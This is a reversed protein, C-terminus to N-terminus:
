SAARPKRGASPSRSAQRTARPAATSASSPERPSPRIPDPMPSRPPTAGPNVTVSVTSPASTGNADTVVLSFTLTAAPQNFAVAPATFTPNAQTANSLTVQPGATQSWQFSVAIGTADASASGDLIVQASSAVTQSPGANAVPPAPPPPPPPPPPPQAAGEIEIEAALISGDAQLTGEIEIMQGAALDAFSAKRDRIEFTTSSATHVTKGAVTLDLGAIRDIAGRFEIETKDKGKGGGHIKTARISGDDQQLGQVDIVQGVLDSLAPAKGDVDFQTSKDVHVTSTAIRLDNGKASAVTGRIEAEPQGKLNGKGDRSLSISVGVVLAEDLGPLRISADVGPGSLHLTSPGQAAASLSFRGAGDTQGSLNTGAIDAKLAQAATGDAAAIQAQLTFREHPATSSQNCALTAALLSLVATVRVDRITRLM